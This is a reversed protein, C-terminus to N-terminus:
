YNAKHTQGTTIDVWTEEKVAELSKALDKRVQAEADEYSITRGCMAEFKVLSQAKVKIIGQNM